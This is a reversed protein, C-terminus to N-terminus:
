AHAAEAPKDSTNAYHSALWDFGAQTCRYGAGAPMGDDTWLSREYHALGKRALARTVRRINHPEVDCRRAIGAFSYARWEHPDFGDALILLVKRERISVTITM